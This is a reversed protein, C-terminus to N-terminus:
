QKHKKIRKVDLHEGGEWPDMIDILEQGVAPLYIQTSRSPNVVSAMATATIDCALPSSTSDQGEMARKVMLAIAANMQSTQKAYEEIPLWIAEAVEHNCINIETTEPECRCVVYLDSADYVTKHQQRMAVVSRFSSKVGTEEFVERVATAAFDEGPDSRGGPLKYGTVAADKERIM